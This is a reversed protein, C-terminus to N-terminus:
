LWIEGELVPEDVQLVRGYSALNEMRNTDEASALTTKERPLRIDNPGEEDEESETKLIAVIKMDSPDIASSCIVNLHVETDGEHLECERIQFPNYSFFSLQPEDAISVNRGFFDTTLDRWNRYPPTHHILNRELEDLKGDDVKEEMAESSSVEYYMGGLESLRESEYIDEIHDLTASDTKGIDGPFLDVDTGAIERVSADESGGLAGGSAGREMQNFMEILYEKSFERTEHLIRLDDGIEFLTESRSGEPELKLVMDTNVNVWGGQANIALCRIEFTSWISSFEDVVPRIELRGGGGGGDGNTSM